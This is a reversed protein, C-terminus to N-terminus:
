RVNDEKEEKQDPPKPNEALLIAGIIFIVLLLGIWHSFSDARFDILDYSLAGDIAVALVVVLGVLFYKVTKQGRRSFTKM